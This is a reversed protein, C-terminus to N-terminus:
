STPKEHQRVTAATLIPGSATETEFSLQYMIHRSDIAGAQDHTISADTLSDILEFTATWGNARYDDLVQMWNSNAPYADDELDCAIQSWNSPFSVYEVYIIGAAADYRLWRVESAHVTGGERDDNLWLAIDQGYVGLICRAPAIYASLRSQAAHARVMVARSDRRNGVGTTVAGLMATIAAAVMITISMALLLELLSLGRSIRKM